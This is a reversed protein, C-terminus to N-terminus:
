RVRFRGGVLGIRPASRGDFAPRPAPDVQSTTMSAEALFTSGDPIIIEFNNDRPQIYSMEVQTMQNIKKLATLGSTDQMTKWFRRIHNLYAARYDRAPRQKVNNRLVEFCDKVTAYIPKHLRNNVTNHARFVFMMFKTRSSLYDPFRQRYGRLLEEFHERCSPCTITSQFMDLWTSMLTIEQQTPNDPYCSSVSHITMWGLPGWVSTM